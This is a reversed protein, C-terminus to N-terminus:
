ATAKNLQEVHADLAYLLSRLTSDLVGVFSSMPAQIGGVTQARVVPTAPLDPLSKVQALTMVHKGMLGGKLKLSEAERAFEAMARVPPGFEGFCFSVATSGQLVDELQPLGLEELSRLLLTNKTVMIKADMPRVKNRLQAMQQATLGVYEALIVAQSRTIMDKLQEVTEHKKEKTVPM